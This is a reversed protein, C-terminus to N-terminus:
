LSPHGSRPPALTRTHCVSAPVPKPPARPSCPGARQCPQAGGGLGWGRERCEPRAPAPTLTHLPQRSAQPASPGQLGRIEWSPSPLHWPLASARPGARVWQATGVPLLPSPWAAARPLACPFLLESGTRGPGHQARAQSRPPPAQFDSDAPCQATHPQDPRPPQTSRPATPPARTCRPIELPRHCRGGM